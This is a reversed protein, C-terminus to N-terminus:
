YITYTSIFFTLYNTQSDHHTFTTTFQHLLLHPTHIIKVVYLHPKLVPKICPM